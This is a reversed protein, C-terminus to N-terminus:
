RNIRMKKTYFFNNEKERKMCINIKIYLDISLSVPFAAVEFQFTATNDADKKKWGAM